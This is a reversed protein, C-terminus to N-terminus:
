ATILGLVEDTLREDRSMELRPLSLAQSLSVRHSTEDTLAALGRDGSDVRGLHIPDDAGHKCLVSYQRCPGRTSISLMTGMKQFLSKIFSM